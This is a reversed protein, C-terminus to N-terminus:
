GTIGPERCPSPPHAVCPSPPHYYYIVIRSASLQATLVQEITIHDADLLAGVTCSEVCGTDLPSSPVITLNELLLRLQLIADANTAVANFLADTRCPSPPHLNGGFCPSPPFLDEVDIVPISQVSVGELPQLIAVTDSTHNIASIVSGATLLPPQVGGNAQAYVDLPVALLLGAILIAASTVLVFRQM